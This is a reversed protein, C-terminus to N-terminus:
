IGGAALGKRLLKGRYLLAPRLTVRTRGPMMDFWSATEESYDVIEIERGHLYYRLEELKDLAFEGDKSYLAELLDSLLLTDAEPIVEEPSLNNQELSEWRESAVGKELNQDIILIVSRLSRYIKGPDVFNEAFQERRSSAKAKGGHMRGSLYLLGAGLVTLILSVAGKAASTLIGGPLVNIVFGAATVAIGVAIAIIEGTKMGPSGAAGAQEREWVKTQGVSDVLPVAMRAASIMDAAATRSKESIDQSNYRYLLRDLEKELVERAKEPSKAKELETTFQEKDNELFELMSM